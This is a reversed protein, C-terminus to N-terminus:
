ESVGGSVYTLTSPVQHNQVRSQAAMGLGHRQEGHRQTYHNKSPRM